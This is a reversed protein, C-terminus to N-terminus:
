RSERRPTHTAPAKPITPSANATPHNIRSGDVGRDIVATDPGTDTDAIGAGLRTRRDGGTDGGPGTSAADGRTDGGAAGICIGRAVFEARPGAERGVLGTTRVLSRAACGADDTM